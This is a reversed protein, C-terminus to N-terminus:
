KWLLFTMALFILRSLAPKFWGGVVAVGNGSSLCAGPLVALALPRYHDVPGSPIMLWERRVTLVTRGNLM